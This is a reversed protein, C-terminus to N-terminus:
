EEAGLNGRPTLGKTGTEGRKVSWSGSGIIGELERRHRPACLNQSIGRAISDVWSRGFPIIFRAASSVADACPFELSCKIRMFRRDTNARKTTKAVDMTATDDMAAAACVGAAGFGAAGAAGFGAAAAGTGMAFTATM